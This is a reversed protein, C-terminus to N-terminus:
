NYKILLRKTAHSQITLNTGDTRLLPTFCQDTGGLVKWPISAPRHHGIYDTDGVFLAKSCTHDSDQKPILWATKNSPSLQFLKRIVGINNYTLYIRIDHNQYCQFLGREPWLFAATPSTSDNAAWELAPRPLVRKQCLRDSFLCRMFLSDDHLGDTAGLLLHQRRDLSRVM